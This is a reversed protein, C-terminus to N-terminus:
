HLGKGRDKYSEFVQGAEGKYSRNYGIINNKTDRVIQQNILDGIGANRLQEGSLTYNNPYNDVPGRAQLFENYRARNAGIVGGDPMQAQVDEGQEQFLKSFKRNLKNKMLFATRTGITGPNDKVAKESKQQMNYLKSGLEKFTKNGRNKKGLVKTGVPAKVIVGGQAHTPADESIKEITGDPLMYPEGAELEATGYSIMGGMPMLPTQNYNTVGYQNIYDNTQAIKQAKLQQERITKQQEALQDEQSKEGIHGMVGKALGVAGGIIAGAGVGIPGGLTGALAGTGAGAATSVLIGGTSMEQPKRSTSPRRMKRKCAM